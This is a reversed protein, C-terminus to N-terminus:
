RGTASTPKTGGAAESGTAKAGRGSDKNEACNTAVVNDPELCKPTSNPNFTWKGKASSLGECSEKDKCEASSEVSCAAFVSSGIFMSFIVALLIKMSEGKEILV